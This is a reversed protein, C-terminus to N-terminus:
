TRFLLIEDLFISLWHGLPFNKGANKINRGFVKIASAPTNEVLLTKNLLIGAM